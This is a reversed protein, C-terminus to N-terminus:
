LKPDILKKELISWDSMGFSLSMQFVCISRLLQANMSNLFSLFLLLVGVDTQLLFFLYSRAQKSVDHLRGAICSRDDYRRSGNSIQTPKTAGGRPVDEDAFFNWCWFQHFEGLYHPWWSISFRPFEFVLISWNVGFSIPIM